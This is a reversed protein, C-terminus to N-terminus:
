DGVTERLRRSAKDGLYVEMVQGDRTMKDFPGDFIVSGRNLIMVRGVLESMFQMVHEIILMTVGRKRLELLLAKLMRTELPTLGGAPEDLLLMKPHGCIASAITVLKRDLMPLHELVGDSKATLGVLEIAERASDRDARRYTLGTRTRGGRKFVAGAVVNEYVTLSPFVAASQFVRALGMCYIQEPSVGTIERGDFEIAGSSVSTLGTVVELLTTKGAGNPGGVGVIEGPRVEFSVDSLACVNAFTKHVRTCKLIASM